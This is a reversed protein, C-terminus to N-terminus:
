LLAEYKRLYYPSVEFQWDRYRSALRIHAQMRAQRDRDAADVAAKGDLRDLMENVAAAIEDPTNEELAIGANAFDATVTFEHAKAEITEAFTMLRGDRRFKKFICSFPQPLGVYEWGWASLDVFLIARRSYYAITDLGSATSVMLHCEAALFVDMFESRGGSAYDIVGPHNLSLPAGAAAGLRIVHFGREAAALMATEFNEISANRFDSDGGIGAKRTAWYSADRVHFCVFPAGQPVGMEALIARGLSKEAANLVIQPAARSLLRDRDAFEHLDRFRITIRHVDAGPLLANAAALWEAWRHIRLNRRVLYQAFLNAAQGDTGYDFYFLDLANRPQLGVARELLYAEAEMPCHGIKHRLVYGVRIWLLPRILRMLVAFPLFLMAMLRARKRHERKLRSQEERTAGRVQRNSLFRRWTGEPPSAPLPYTM